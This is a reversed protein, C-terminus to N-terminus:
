YDIAFALYDKKSISEDTTPTENADQKMTMNKRDIDHTVNVFIARQSDAM